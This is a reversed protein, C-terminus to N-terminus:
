EQVCNWGNKVAHFTDLYLTIEPGFKGANLGFVSFYPASVVRCKSVKVCHKELELCCFM